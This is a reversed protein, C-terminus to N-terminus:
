VTKLLWMKSRPSLHKVYAGSTYSAWPALEGTQLYIGIMTRIAREPNDFVDQVSSFLAGTGIWYPEGKKNKGDNFQCIGYDTTKANEGVARNDFESEQYICACLIDKKKYSLGMEDCLVRTSHFAAKPNSFNLAIPEPEPMPTPIIPDLIEDNDDVPQYEEPLFPGFKYIKASALMGLIAALIGVLWGWTM